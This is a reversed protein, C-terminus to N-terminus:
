TLWQGTTAAAICADYNPRTWQWPPLAKKPDVAAGAARNGEMLFAIPDGVLPAPAPAREIVRGERDIFEFGSAPAPRIAFAREHLLQHHFPCLLVLNELKTEGGELWSEVHHAHLWKTHACGPFRCRCEDRLMLARRLPPRVTRTRRGVDLVNGRADKMVGTLGTDCAIKRLTETSLLTGDPLEARVAGDLLSPTLHVVLQQREDVPRASGGGAFSEALHLLGEAAGPSSAVAARGGLISAQGNWALEIKRLLEERRAVAEPSDVDVEDDDPERTESSVDGDSPPEASRVEESPPTEASADSPRDQELLATRAAEIAQMVTAAEHPYLQIEIRTMGDRTPRSHVYRRPPDEPQPDARRVGRCIRELESASADGAMEVLRAENEPTAVRTLARVKSYSLRGDRLGADVMPLGELAHAVRVRERAAGMRLGLRWSLWHACSRANRGVWAGSKDYARLLTLSRHMAADINVEIEAMEREVAEADLEQVSTSRDQLM